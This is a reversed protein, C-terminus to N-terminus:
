VSLQKYYLFDIAKSSTGKDVLDLEQCVIRYINRPFGGNFNWTDSSNQMTVIGSINPYKSGLNYRKIYNSLESSYTFRKSEVDKLLTSLEKAEVDSLSHKKTLESSALPDIESKKNKASDRQLSDLKSKLKEIEKNATNLEESFKLSCFNNIQEFLLDYLPTGSGVAKLVKEAASRSFEYHILTENVFVGYHTGLKESSIKKIRYSM